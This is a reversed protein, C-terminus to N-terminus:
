FSIIGLAKRLIVLADGVTIAGDPNPKNQVDLPAVDGHAIDEATPTELLLAFRLAVLADGVNVVGDRSGLPAVDGLEGDGGNELETTIFINDFQVTDPTSSSASDIAFVGVKGNPLATDESTELLTNNAYFKLTGGRASIKMTNWQNYGTKLVNSSTWDVLKTFNGGVSKGIMYFGDVVINFEYYNQQIGDSRVYLGYGYASSDSDGGTKQVDVQYTFDTFDQDYHSYRGADEKKGTVVYAGGSVSWCGSGDDTWNQAQGSSFDITVAGSSEEQYTASITTMLSESVTINQSSPAIWGSVTKFEVTFIGSPILMASDSERWSGGSIRWAAGRMVASQPEIKVKLAAQEYSNATIPNVVKDFSGDDGSDLMINGAGYSNIQMEASSLQSIPVPYLQYITGGTDMVLVAVDRASTFRLTGNSDDPMFFFFMKDTSYGMYDELKDYTFDDPNYTYAKKGTGDYLDASEADFVAIFRSGSALNTNLLGTLIASGLHQYEMDAPPLNSDSLDKVSFGTWESKKGWKQTMMNKTHNYWDNGTKIVSLKYLLKKQKDTIKGLKKLDDLQDVKTGVGFFGAAIVADVYQKETLKCIIDQVALGFGVVAATPPILKVLEIALYQEKTQPSLACVVDHFLTSVSDKSITFIKLMNHDYNDETNGYIGVGKYTQPYFSATFIYNGDDALFIGPLTHSAIPYSPFYLPSLINNIGARKFECYNCYAETEPAWLSSDLLNWSFEKNRWNLILKIGLREGDWVDGAEDNYQELNLWPCTRSEFLAQVGHKSGDTDMQIVNFTTMDLGVGVKIIAENTKGTDLDTVTIKESYSDKPPKGYDVAPSALSHYWITAEGYSDTQLTKSKTDGGYNKFKYGWLRGKASSPLEFKIRRGQKDFGSDDDVAVTIRAALNKDYPILAVNDSGGQDSPSATVDLKHNIPPPVYEGIDIAMFISVSHTEYGVLELKIRVSATGNIEKTPEFHPATYRAYCPTDEDIYESIFEVRGQQGAPLKDSGIYFNLSGPYYITFTLLASSEGDAPLTYTDATLDLWESGRASHVSFFFVACILSFIVNISYQHARSIKNVTYM